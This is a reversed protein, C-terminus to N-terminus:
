PTTTLGQRSWDSGRNRMGVKLDKIGLLHHMSTGPRGAVKPHNIHKDESPVYIRQHLPPPKTFLRKSRARLQDMTLNKEVLAEKKKFFDSGEWSEEVVDTWQKRDSGEVVENQLKDSRWATPTCTSM